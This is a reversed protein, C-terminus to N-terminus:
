DEASVGATLAKSSKRGWGMGKIKKQVPDEQAARAPRSSVRSVLSVKLEYLDM